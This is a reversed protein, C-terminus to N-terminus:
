GDAQQPVVRYALCRPYGRIVCLQRAGNEISKEDYCAECLTERKEFVEQSLCGVKVLQRSIAEAMSLVSSVKVIECRAYYDDEFSVNAARLSADEGPIQQAGYLPKSIVKAESFDPIYQSLHKIASLTREQVESFAWKQEIKKLLQEPLQPQASQPTSKVLGDEFLTIKKSMGHLQFHGGPYPTFQAMGQPTGREGFFVVEPWREDSKEWQTVYAAKFEVMRERSFSLMDDVSGTRFGAANILFDYQERCHMQEKEYHVCWGKADDAKSIATVETELILHCNKEKELALKVGAGLRFLNLGYEQVMILPFQVTDLDVYQSVPYMWADLSGVEFETQLKLAEVDERWYLKYYRESEGLVKNTVDEDILKQYAHRLTELRSFQAQPTSKDGVPVAIVTPRYDVAYPYFKVLDISEKLLTVCQETSIERYLNGGAHLHCFPPGNVLTAEQEFLTVDLDLKSLYLAATAGAAGGGVIAIKRRNQNM